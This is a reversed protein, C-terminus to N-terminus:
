APLKYSTKLQELDCVIYSPNQISRIMKTLNFSNVKGWNDGGFCCYKWCSKFTEYFDYEFRMYNITRLGNNRLNNYTKKIHSPLLVDHCQTAWSDEEWDDKTDFKSMISICSQLFEIIGLKVIKNFSVSTISNRGFGFFEFIPNKKYM